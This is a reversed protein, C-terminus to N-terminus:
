PLIQGSQAATGVAAPLTESGAYLARAVLSKVLASKDAMFAMFTEPSHALIALGGPNNNSQMLARRQAVKFAALLSAQAANMDKVEPAVKEITEKFGRALAKQAEVSESQLQGYKDKLTQYIGQKLEQAWAVPINKPILGNAMFNDYVSEIAARADQPTPNTKEVRSIIDKIRSAVEEKNVTASSESLRSKVADNIRTIKDSLERVGGMTANVGEELMTNVATAARGTQLDKLTPKLATQMVWKSAGELAPGALKGATMGGGFLSTVINAATGVGAAVEDSTGLKKALDTAKGGLELMPDVRNKLFEARQARYAEIGKLQDPRPAAAAVAAVEPADKWSFDTNTLPADQWGM